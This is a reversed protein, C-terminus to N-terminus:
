GQLQRCVPAEESFAYIKHSIVKEIVHQAVNRTFELLSGGSGAHSYFGHLISAEELTLNTTQAAPPLHGSLWCCFLLSGNQSLTYPLEGAELRCMADSLFDWKNLRSNRPNYDLLDSLSHRKIDSYLTTKIPSISVLCPQVAKLPSSLRDQLVRPLLSSPKATRLYYQLQRLKDKVQKPPMGSYKLCHRTMLRLPEVVKNRFNAKISDTIYLGHVYDHANSLRAKYPDSGPTLDYVQYGKSALQQALLQFNLIGPSYRAHFCSHTAIETGHMWNNYGITDTISAIIENNLTLLTVHLIGEKFLDLLFQKKLSDSRFETWNYKAAKRFDYQDALIDLVEAFREQSTVHEFEVHGLKKLQNLRKRLHKSNFIDQIDEARFDMLPRYFTRVTCYNRWVNDDKAWSLPTLPPTNYFNIDYGAYRTRLATIAQKIFAEGFEPEALWVQYHAERAGAVQIAKPAIDKAMTLLGVLKGGHEARVVIPEFRQAYLRYWTSVFARGQFVTGWPCRLALLDWKSAFGPIAIAELAQKGALVEISVTEVSQYGQKSTNFKNEEPYTPDITM